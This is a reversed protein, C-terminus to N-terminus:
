GSRLTGPEEECGTQWYEKRALDVRQELSFFPPKEPNNGVGVVLHDYIRSGRRIIDVHGLHIPDFMGTYVAIRTGTLAAM